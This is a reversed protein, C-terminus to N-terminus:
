APRRSKLGSEITMLAARAGDDGTMGNAHAAAFLADRVEAESLAGALVFRALSFTERNLTDNRGGKGAAGVRRVAHHLAAVAYNRAQDGSALRAPAKAEPEPPPKVLELLWGPAPPPSTDWPAAIWRYPKGTSHHRSPPITQTQQGRRPDSGPVPVGAKGRIPEGSHAFFIALGGGGSRM